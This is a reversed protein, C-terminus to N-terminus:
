RCGAASLGFARAAECPFTKYIEGLVLWWLGIVQYDLGLTATKELTGSVQRIQGRLEDVGRQIESLLDRRTTDIKCAVVTVQQHLGIVDRELAALRVSMSRSGPSVHGTASVGVEMSSNGRLEVRPVAPGGRWAAPFARFHPLMRSVIGAHSFMERIERINAAVLLVGLLALLLGSLRIAFETREGAVLSCLWPLAFPVAALWVSSPVL